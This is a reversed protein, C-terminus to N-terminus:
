IVNVYGINIFLINQLSYIKSIKFPNIWNVDNRIPFNLEFTSYISLWVAEQFPSREVKSPESYM